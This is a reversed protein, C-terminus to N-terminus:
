TFFVVSVRIDPTKDKPVCHRHQADWTPSFYNLDGHDLRLNTRQGTEINRFYLTRTAGFSLTFVWGGYQDQHEPTYDQGNRYQNCWVSHVQVQFAQEVLGKLEDLVPMTQGEYRYALRPLFKGRGWPIKKWPLMLLRLFYDNAQSVTLFEKVHETDKLHSPSPATQQLLKLLALM